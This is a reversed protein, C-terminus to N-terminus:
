PTLKNYYTGQLPTLEMGLAHTYTRNTQLALFTLRWVWSICDATHSIPSVSNTYYHLLHTIPRHYKECLYCM